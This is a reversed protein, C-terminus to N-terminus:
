HAAMEPTACPRVRSFRSLLLLLEVYFNLLCSSLICSQCVGKGFKSWDRAGQRTSVITEQGAYLKRLLCSLYDTIEMEQLIKWLKNHDM